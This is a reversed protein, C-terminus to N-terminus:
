ADTAEVFEGDKTLRYAKGPEIGNEGVMSARVAVLKPPFVDTDYAALMIAGGVGAKATSAVGLASSISSEGTSVAHARYGTSVAHAYYGTTVAHSYYGTAVAHSFDGTSAAHAYDGSSGVNAYNGTSAVHACKGTTAAHASYGTTAAHAYDGTTAAHSFSGASAAHVRKGTSSSHVCNGATAIGKAAIAIWAVAARILEPLHIDADITIKASAIKTDSNDDDSAIDGGPTTIAYRGIAPRYYNWTDMPMEVSHFAGEGCRAVPLGGNDYTKGIEYQFKVGHPTCTLDANFGKYTRLQVPADKDVM